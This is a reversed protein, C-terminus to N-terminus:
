FASISLTYCSQVRPTGLIHMYGGLVISLDRSRGDGYIIGCDGTGVPNTFGLGLGRM